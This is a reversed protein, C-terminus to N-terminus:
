AHFQHTTGNVAIRSVTALNISRPAQKEADWVPMLHPHREARTAVAKRAAESAAEGKVHFKLTAPQVRMVRESGDAKTFTVTCFRGAASAILTRKVDQERAAARAEADRIAIRLESMRSLGEHGLYDRNELDEIESRLSDVSRAMMAATRKAKIWANCLCSRFVDRLQRPAYNLRVMLDRTATWAETMISKRDYTM